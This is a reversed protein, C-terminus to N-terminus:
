FKSLAIGELGFSAIKDDQKITDWPNSNQIHVHTQNATQGKDIKKVDMIKRQQFLTWNFLTGVNMVICM